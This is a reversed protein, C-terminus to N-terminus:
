PTRPPRERSGPQANTAIEAKKEAMEVNGFSYFKAADEAAHIRSGGRDRLTRAYLIADVYLM